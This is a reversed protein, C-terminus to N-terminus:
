AAFAYFIFLHFLIFVTEIPKVIKNSLAVAIAFFRTKKVYTMLSLRLNGNNNLCASM